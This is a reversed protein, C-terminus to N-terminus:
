KGKEGVTKEGCAQTHSQDRGMITTSKRSERQKSMIFSRACFGNSEFGAPCKQGITTPLRWVLSNQERFRHIFQNARDM